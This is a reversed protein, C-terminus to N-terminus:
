IPHSLYSILPPVIYILIIAARAYLLGRHIKYSNDFSSDIKPLKSRNNLFAVLILAAIGALFLTSPVITTIGYGNFLDYIPNFSDYPSYQDATNTYFISYTFVWETLHIFISTVLFGLTLAMDLLIGFEFDILSFVILTIFPLLLLIWQPHWKVFMFFTSLSAFGFLLSYVPMNRESPKIIYALVCILFFILLFVSYNSTGGTIYTKFIYSSFADGSVILNQTVTYGPDALTPIIITVALLSLTLGLYQILKVIRKEAFLLLPIAVFVPMVKFCCAIAMLLSFSIYKKQFYQKLALIICLAPIIDLNNRIIVCYILIPSSIFYFGAWKAKAKDKMLFESLKTIQIFCVCSLIINLLRGWIELILEYTPTPIPIIHKTIYLPLEWVALVIYVLINYVPAIPENKLTPGVYDGAAVKALVSGYFDFPRGTFICDLLEDSWQAAFAMDYWQDFFIFAAFFLCIVVFADVIGPTKGRFSVSRGLEDKRSLM